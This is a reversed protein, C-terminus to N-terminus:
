CGTRVKLDFAEIRSYRPFKDHLIAEIEYWYSDQVDKRSEYAKDPDINTKVGRLICFGHVDLDWDNPDAIPRVTVDHDEPETNRARIGELGVVHDIPFDTTFAKETRLVEGRGIYRISTEM